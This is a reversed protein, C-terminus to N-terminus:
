LRRTSSPLKPSFACQYLMAGGGSKAIRYLEKLVEKPNEVHGLVANCIVADFSEDKFPLYSADGIVDTSSTKEIDLGIYTDGSSFGVLYKNFDGCGVDLVMGNFNDLISKMQKRTEIDVRSTPSLIKLFTRIFRNVM